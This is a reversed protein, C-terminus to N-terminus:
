GVTFQFPSGSDKSSDFKKGDAFRGVYHVQVKQGKKPKVGNGASLTEVNFQSDM